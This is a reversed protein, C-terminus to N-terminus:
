VLCNAYAKPKRVEMERGQREGETVRRICPGATYIDDMLSVCSSGELDDEIEASAELMETANNGQEESGAESTNEEDFYDGIVNKCRLVTEELLAHIGDGGEFDNEDGNSLGFDEDFIVEVVDDVLVQM